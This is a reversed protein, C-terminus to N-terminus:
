HMPTKMGAGKCCDEFKKAIVSKTMMDSWNLNTHVKVLELEGNEIVDRIWHYRVDIHKTRSHYTSNKALHIASQNDCRLKYRDQKHGLKLLLNKMWLIEKCAETAAIYEAETTSLAVCKQLKSQWSVAGGAFTMLYGSTSKRSDVDGGLDADTFGLLEVKSGGFRLCLNKTGRLYKFIWKVAEWHDKGLNSLYRSVMGVVHTLDPRTNVMAYMLSGVASQYSVKRMEAKDKKSRPCQEKSLKFHGALPTSVPNANDM